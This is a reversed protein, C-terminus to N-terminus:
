GCRGSVVVLLRELVDSMRSLDPSGVSWRDLTAISLKVLDWWNPPPQVEGNKILVALIILASRFSARCIFWTGGHRHHYAGQLIIETCLSVEERATSIVQPTPPSDTPHHLYYFLLPRAICERWDRFRGQLYFSLENSPHKADFKLSPPLHSYRDFCPKM